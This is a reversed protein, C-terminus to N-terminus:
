LVGISLNASWGRDAGISKGARWVWTVLDVRIHKWPLFRFRTWVGVSKLWGTGPYVGRTGYVGTEIRAHRLQWRIGAMWQWSIPSYRLVRLNGEVFGRIGRAGGNVECRVGWTRTGYYEHDSYLLWDRILGLGIRFYPNHFSGEVSGSIHGTKSTQRGDAVVRLRFNKLRFGGRIGAERLPGKTGRSGTFPSFVRGMPSYFARTVWLGFGELHFRKWSWGASGSFVGGLGQQHYSVAAMAVLRRLWAVRVGGLMRPHHYGLDVFVAEVRVDKHPVALVRIGTAPTDGDIPFRSLSDLLVGGFGTVSIVSNSFGILGGGVARYNYARPLPRLQVVLRHNWAIPVFGAGSIAWGDLWRLSFSGAGLGVSHIATKCYGRPVRVGRKYFYGAQVGCDVRAHLQAQMLAIRESKNGYDWTVTKITAMGKTAGPEPRLWFSRSLAELPTHPYEHNPDFSIVDGAIARFSFGFILLILLYRM